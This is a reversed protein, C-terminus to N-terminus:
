NNIATVISSDFENIARILEPITAQYEYVPQNSYLDCNLRNKFTKRLSVFLRTFNHDGM